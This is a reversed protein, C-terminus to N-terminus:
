TVMRLVEFSFESWRSCDILSRGTTGYLACDEGSEDWKGMSVVLCDVVEGSLRGLCKAESDWCLIV